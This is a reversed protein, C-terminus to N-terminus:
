AATLRGASARLRTRVPLSTLGAIFNSKLQV